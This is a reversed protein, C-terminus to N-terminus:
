GRRNRWLLFLGLAIVVLHLWWVGLWTPIKGAIIWDRTIFMFNAYLICIVIAPLLKAYKGGRPNVRSLPVSILTLPFIMFPISIRWQLEAAKKTDPNNYPLLDAFPVARIDNKVTVDPNPIRSRSNKFSAVQLELSGPFGLYKKGNELHLYDLNSKKDTEIYARDAWLVDWAQQSDSLRTSNTSLSDSKEDSFKRVPKTVSRAIFINEARTHKNNMSQVYFVERGGNIARFRGPIITQILTKVGSTQLLKARKYAIIPNNWVMAGTIVAVILGMLLSYPLLGGFGCAKLVTIESDAYLRGYALLIAFYFGLPLLLSLMNPLELAMLQVVLMGPIIGSAARNLYIVVQNSLFILLLISTLAVLTTFVEKALYRFVLM